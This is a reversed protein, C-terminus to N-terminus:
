KVAYASPSRGHRLARDATCGQMTVHVATRRAMGTKRPRSVQLVTTSNQLATMREVKSQETGQPMTLGKNKIPIM